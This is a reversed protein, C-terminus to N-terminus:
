PAEGVLVLASSTTVLAAGSPLLVPRSVPSGAPLSVASETGGAVRALAGSSLGVLLASDAAIAPPTSPAASLPITEAVQGQADVRVLSASLALWAGGDPLFAPPFDSQLDQRQWRAQGNPEVVALAAAPGQVCAWVASDAGVGLESVAGGLVVTDVLLREADYIHLKGEANVVYLSGDPAVVPAVPAASGIFSLWALEGTADFGRVVGDSCPVVILGRHAV